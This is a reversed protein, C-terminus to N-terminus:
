LSPLQAANPDNAKLDWLQILDGAIIKEAIERSQEQYIMCFTIQSAGDYEFTVKRKFLPGCNMQDKHLEFWRDFLRLRRVDENFPYYVVIGGYKNFYYELIIALTFSIRPDTPFRVDNATGVVEFDFSHIKVTGGSYDTFYAYYERGQDTTFKTSEFGPQSSYDEIRYPSM